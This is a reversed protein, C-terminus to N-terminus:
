RPASVSQAAGLLSVRVVVEFIVHDLADTRVRAKWSNSLCVGFDFVFFAYACYLRTGPVGKRGKSEPTFMQRRIEYGAGPHRGRLRM